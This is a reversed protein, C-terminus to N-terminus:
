VEIVKRESLVMKAISAEAPYNLNNSLKILENRSEASMDYLANVADIKNQWNFDFLKKYILEELEKNKIKEATKIAQSILETSSKLFILRLANAAGAFELEEFYKMTQIVLERNHSYLLYKLALGTAKPYKFYTFVAIIITRIHDDTTNEIYEYMEDCSSPKFQILISYLNDSSVRKHFVSLRLINVIYSKANMRAISRAAHSFIEDDRHKLYRSIHNKYSKDKFLGLYYIAEIRKKKRFSKLAMEFYNTVKETKLLSSLRKFDNGKLLNLYNRIIMLLNTVRKNELNQLFYEPTEDSELFHFIKPEWESSFKKHIKSKYIGYSRLFILIQSMIFIVLLFFVLLFLVIDIFTVHSILNSINLEAM